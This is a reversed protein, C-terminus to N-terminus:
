AFGGPPNAEPERRLRPDPSARPTPRRLFDVFIMLMDITEHDSAMPLLVSEISLFEKHPGLYDPRLFVPAGIEIARVHYSWLGSGPAQGPIETMWQGTVNRSLHHCISTGILRYRFDLPELQVDKLMINPALQPVEILPDFDARAPFPRDGKRAAWYALGSRVLPSQLDNESVTAPM